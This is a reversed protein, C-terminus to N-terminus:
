VSYITPLTLHTYSVSALDLTRSIQTGAARSRVKRCRLPSRQLGSAPTATGLHRRSTATGSSSGRQRAGDPYLPCRHSADLLGDAAVVQALASDSYLALDLPHALDAHLHKTLAGKADRRLGYAASAPATTPLYQHSGAAAPAQAASDQVGSYM